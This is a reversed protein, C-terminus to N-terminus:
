TVSVERVVYNDAGGEKWFATGQSIDFTIGDFGDIVEKTKMIIHGVRNVM